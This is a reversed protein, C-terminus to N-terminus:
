KSNDQEVPINHKSLINKFIDRTMVLGESLSKVKEEADPLKAKEQALDCVKALSEYISLTKEGFSAINKANRKKLEASRERRKNEADAYKLLLKHHLERATEQSKELEAYRRAVEDIIQEAQQKEEIKESEVPIDEVNPKKQAITQEQAFFRSSFGLLRFQRNILSSQSNRTIACFSRRHLSSLM